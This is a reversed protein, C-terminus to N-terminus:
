KKPCDPQFHLMFMDHVKECSYKPPEIYSCVADGSSIIVCIAGFCSADFFYLKKFGMKHLNQLLTKNELFNYVYSRDFRSSQMQLGTFKKGKKGESCVDIRINVGKDLYDNELKRAFRKRQEASVKSNNKGAAYPCLGLLMLALVLCSIMKAM